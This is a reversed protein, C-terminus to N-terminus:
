QMVFDANDLGVIEISDQVGIYIIGIRTNVFAIIKKKLDPTYIEKLEVTESECLEMTDRRRDTEIVESM